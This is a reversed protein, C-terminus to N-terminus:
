AFRRHCPRRCRNRRHPSRRPPGEAALQARSWHSPLASESLSHPSSLASCLSLLARRSAAARITGSEPSQQHRARTTSPCLADAATASPLARHRPEPSARGWRRGAMATATAVATAPRTPVGARCRKRARAAGGRRLVALAAPGYSAGACRSLPFLSLRSSVGLRARGGGPGVAVRLAPLGSRKPGAAAGGGRSLSPSPSLFPLRHSRSFSLLLSSLASSSSMVEMCIVM